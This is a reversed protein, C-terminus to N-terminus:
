DTRSSTETMLHSVLAAYFVNLIDGTWEILLGGLAPGVAVGLSLCGQFVGFAMARHRPSTCDAVYANALAMGLLFSGCLGDIAAGVLMINVDFYQPFKAALITTIENGLLGLSSVALLKRRGYRDSLSGLRPSTFAGPVM